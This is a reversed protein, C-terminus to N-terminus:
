DLRKLVQDYQAFYVGGCFNLLYRKSESENFTKM